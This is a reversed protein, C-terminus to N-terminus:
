NLRGRTIEINDIARWYASCIEDHRARSINERMRECFLTLVAGAAVRDALQALASPRAISQLSGSPQAFALPSSKEPTGYRDGAPEGLLRSAASRKSPAPQRPTESM